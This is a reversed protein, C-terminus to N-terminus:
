EVWVFRWNANELRAWVKTFKMGEKTAGTLRIVWMKDGPQDLLVTPTYEGM